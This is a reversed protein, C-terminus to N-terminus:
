KKLVAMYHVGFKRLSVRELYNNIRSFFGFLFKPIIHPFFTYYYIEKVEFLKQRALKKPMVWNEGGFRDIRNTLPFIYNMYLRFLFFTNLEHIILLGGKKLVRHIESIAQNFQTNDRLHHLSNICYAFDFSNEPYELKLIDAVELKVGNGQNINKAEDILRASSDLGSMNYGYESINKLYWGTGCGLDIGKAGSKIGYKNLTKLTLRTKKVLLFERIHDPLQEDYRSAITDFHVREKLM